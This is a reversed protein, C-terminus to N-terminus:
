SSFSRNKQLWYVRLCCIGIAQFQVAVLLYWMIDATVHCRGAKGTVLWSLLVCHQGGVAQWGTLMRVLTFWPTNNFMILIIHSWVSRMILIDFELLIYITYEIFVQFQPVIKFLLINVQRVTHFLLTLPNLIKFSIFVNIDKRDESVKEM